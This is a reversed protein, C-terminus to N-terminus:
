HIPLKYLFKEHQVIVLSVAGHRCVVQSLHEDRLSSTDGLSPLLFILLQPSFYFQRHVDLALLTDNEILEKLPDELSSSLM